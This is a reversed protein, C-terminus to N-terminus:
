QVNAWINDEGVVCGIEQLQCSPDAIKIDMKFGTSISCCGVSDDLPKRGFAYGEGKIANWLEVENTDIDRRM